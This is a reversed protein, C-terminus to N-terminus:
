DYIYAGTGPMHQNIMDGFGMNVKFGFKPLHCLVGM